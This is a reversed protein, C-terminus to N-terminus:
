TVRGRTRGRQAIGDGRTATGEVKTTKKTTTAGQVDADTIRTPRRIASFPDDKKKTVTMSPIGGVYPGHKRIGEKKAM